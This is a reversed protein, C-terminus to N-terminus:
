DLQGTFYVAAESTPMRYQTPPGFSIQYSGDPQPTTVISRKLVFWDEAPDPSRKFYLYANTNPKFYVCPFSTWGEGAPSYGFLLRRSSWEGAEGISIAYYGPEGGIKHTLLYGKDDKTCDRNPSYEPSEEGFLLRLKPPPPEVPPSAAPPNPRNLQDCALLTPALLLLLTLYRVITRM